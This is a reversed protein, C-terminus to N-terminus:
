GCEIEACATPALSIAPQGATEPLTYGSEDLTDAGFAAQIQDVFTAPVFERDALPASIVFAAAAFFGIVALLGRWRASRTPRGMEVNTEVDAEVTPRVFMNYM